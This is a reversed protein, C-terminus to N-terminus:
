ALLFCMVPAIVAEFDAAQMAIVDDAPCGIMRVAMTAPYRM